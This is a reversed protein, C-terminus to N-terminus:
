AYKDLLEQTKLLDPHLSRTEKLYDNLWPFDEESIRQWKSDQNDGKNDTDQDWSDSNISPSRPACHHKGTVPPPAGFAQTLFTAGIDASSAEHEQQETLESVYTSFACDAPSDDGPSFDPLLCGISALAYSWTFKGKRFLDVIRDLKSVLEPECIDGSHGQNLPRVKLRASGQPQSKPTSTAPSTNQDRQTGGSIDSTGSVGPSTDTLHHPIASSPAGGRDEPASFTMTGQLVQSGSQGAWETRGRPTQTKKSSCLIRSDLESITPGNDQEEPSVSSLPRDGDTM